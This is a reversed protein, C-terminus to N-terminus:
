AKLFDKKTFPPQPLNQGPANQPSNPRTPRPQSPDIQPSPVTMDNRPASGEYFNPGLQREAGINDLHRQHAEELKGELRIMDSNLRRLGEPTAPYVHKIKTGNPGPMMFILEKVKNAPEAKTANSSACGGGFAMAAMLTLVRGVSKM